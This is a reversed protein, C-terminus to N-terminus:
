SASTPQRPAASSSRVVLDVPFLVPGPAREGKEISRILTNAACRGLDRLDVRVTTLRFPSDVLDDFGVVSIDEPVRIGSLKMAEIAGIAVLDNTVLLATPVPARGSIAQMARFGAATSDMLNSAELFEVSRPQYRLGAEELRRWYAEYKHSHPFGIFGIDRHGLGVLHDMAARTGSEYDIRISEPQGFDTLLDVLILPLGSEELTSILDAGAGGTLISGELQDSLPGRDQLERIRRDDVPLFQLGYGAEHCAESAGTLIRSYGEQAFGFIGASIWFGIPKRAASRFPAPAAAPGVSAVERAFTGRGEGRALVGEAILQTIAERVSTRSIKYREALERESPIRSGAQIAGSKMELLLQVRLQKSIPLPNNSSILGDQPRPTAQSAARRPM